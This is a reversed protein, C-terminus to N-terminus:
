GSCCSAASSCVGRRLGGRVWGVTGVVAAVLWWPLDSLYRQLPNLVDLTLFSSIPTSVGTLENTIWNLTHTAPTSSRSAGARRGTASASRTARSSSSRSTAGWLGLLQNRTLRLAGVDGARDTRQGFAASTRDLWMAMFVILVGAIFGEGIQQTQLANSCRTASGAPM